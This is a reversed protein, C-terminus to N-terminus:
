PECDVSLTWQTGSAGGVVTIIIREAVTPIPIGTGSDFGSQSGTDVLLDDAPPSTGPTTQIILRDPITLADFAWELTSGSDFGCSTITKEYVLGEQGGEWAGIPCCSCPSSGSCNVCQSKLFAM